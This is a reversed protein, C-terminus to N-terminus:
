EIADIEDGAIFNRAGHRMTLLIVIQERITFLVRYRGFLMQRVECSAYANEPAFGCAEADDLAIGTKRRNTSAM